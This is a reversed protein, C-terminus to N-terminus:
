PLQRVSFGRRYRPRAKQREDRETQKERRRDTQRDSIIDGGGGGTTVTTVSSPDTTRFTKDHVIAAENQLSPLSTIEFEKDEAKERSQCHQKLYSIDISDRQRSTQRNTQM